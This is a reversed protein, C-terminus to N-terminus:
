FKYNWEKTLYKTRTLEAIKDFPLDNFQETARWQKMLAHKISDASLNLNILFEKHSRNQRYDPEKSPMQLFREVQSIDFRLLFTGHFILFHKKRRQANGSFKLGGITLDTCGRVEPPSDLLPALAACQRELIYKNTGTISHLPGSEPIKLFLSYNLCGTGQLVTGGGTARRFVPINAAECATLNVERAAQNAYGVVM